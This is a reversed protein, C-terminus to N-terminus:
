FKAKHLKKKKKQFLFPTKSKGHKPEDTGYRSAGAPIHFTFDEPDFHPGSTIINDYIVRTAMPAPSPASAPPTMLPPLSGGTGTSPMQPADDALEDLADGVKGPATPAAVPTTEVAVRRLLLDGQGIYLRVTTLSFHSDARLTVVETPVDRVTATGEWQVSDVENKLDSFPNIGLLMLLELCGSNLRTLTRFDAIRKPAAERTYWNRDPITTWFYKGDSVWQYRLKTDPRADPEEMVLALRNPAAYRLTLKRDLKQETDPKANEDPRTPAAFPTDAPKFPLLASVFESRQELAPLHAYTDAMRQLLALARADFPSPLGDARARGSPLGSCLVVFAFMNLFCNRRTM